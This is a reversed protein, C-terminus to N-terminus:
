DLVFFATSEMYSAGSKIRKRDSSILNASSKASLSSTNSKKQLRKRLTPVTSPTKKFTSPSAIQKMTLNLTIM